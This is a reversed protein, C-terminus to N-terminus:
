SDYKELKARFWPVDLPWRAPISEPIWENFRYNQVLFLVTQSLHLKDKIQKATESVTWGEKTMDAFVMWVDFVKENAGVARRLYSETRLSKKHTKLSLRNKGFLKFSSKEVYFEIKGMFSSKEAM